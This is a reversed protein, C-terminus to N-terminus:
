DGAAPSEDSRAGTGAARSWLTTWSRQSMRRVIKACNDCDKEELAEKASAFADVMRRLEREDSPNLVTSIHQGLMPQLCQGEVLETQKLWASRRTVPTILFM